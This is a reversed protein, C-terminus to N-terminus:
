EGTKQRKSTALFSNKASKGNRKRQRNLIRGPTAFCFLWPPRGSFDMHMKHSNKGVRKNCRWSTRKCKKEQKKEQFLHLSKNSLLLLWSLSAFYSNTNQTVKKRGKKPGLPSFRVTVGGGLATIQIPILQFKTRKMNTVAQTLICHFCPPFSHKQIKPSNQPQLSQLQNSYLM